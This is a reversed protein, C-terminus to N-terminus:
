GGTGSGPMSSRAREQDAEGVRGLPVPEGNMSRRKPGRTDPGTGLVLPVARPTGINPIGLSEPPDGSEIRDRARVYHEQKLRRQATEHRLPAVLSYFGNGKECLEIWDRPAIGFHAACDGPDIIPAPQDGPWGFARRAQLGQLVAQALAIQGRLSPHMADQFLEDDLLGHRGIAHFYSQGDILICDHQSAVERYITQFATLMRQPYGDLNRAAVYHEYAEDWKGAQDLLQALRYHSEAFSPQAAVLSRYQEIRATPDRAELRRVSLFSQAFAAREASPTAAPLYSRNPDYGADNGPPAILVVLSGIRRAYTVIANLRKRFDALLATYELRTYVPVDVLKREDTRSPPLAIRCRDFEQRILQCVSSLGVVRDLARELWNPQGTDRYYRRNRSWWLRSSFENHGCYVILIEPRRVLNALARHQAQLTDGSRALVNLNVSRSAIAKGLQWAVIKGVSIWKQFPVGEASSEGLVAIDITRQDGSDFFHTPLESDELSAPLRWSSDSDDTTGLGTVPLPASALFRRQWAASGAEALVGAVLFSGCVLLTRAVVPHSNRARRARLWILGFCATGLFSAVWTVGYIFELASLVLLRATTLFLASLRSQLWIAGCLSAIITAVAGVGAIALRWSRAVAACEITIKMNNYTYRLGKGAMLTLKEPLALHIAKTCSSGVQALPRGARNEVAFPLLKEANEASGAAPLPNQGVHRTYPNV